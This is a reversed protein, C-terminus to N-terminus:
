FRKRINRGKQILYLPSPLDETMCGEKETNGDMLSAQVAIHPWRVGTTHIYLVSLWETSDGSLIVGQGAARLYTICVHAPCGGPCYLNNVSAIGCNCYINCSSYQELLLFLM